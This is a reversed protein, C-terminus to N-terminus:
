NGGNIFTINDLRAIETAPVSVYSVRNSNVYLEVSLINVGELGLNELANYIDNETVVSKRVNVNITNFLYARIKEEATTSTIFADNAEYVISAEYNFYGFETYFVKYSGSSFVDNVYEVFKTPDVSVTPYIGNSAIIEAVEERMEGAIIVLMYHSPVTIGDITITELTENFKISCDFIYPLNKIKIELEKIVDQRTTDSLIRKRFELSTEEGTGLLNTNDECSFSFDNPPTTEESVTSVAISLQQTVYFRGVKDTLAIYQVYSGSPVVTDEKVTFYFKTDADFEYFYDGAYLTHSEDTNNIAKIALGTYSGKLRETGVLFATSELDSESCTSPNYKNSLAVVLNHIVEYGKSIAKFMLYIINTNSRSITRPSILNDFTDCLQTLIEDFTKTQM